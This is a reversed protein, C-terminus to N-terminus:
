PAGALWATGERWWPSGTGLTNGFEQHAVAGVRREGKGGGTPHREEHYHRQREQKPRAKAPERPGQM